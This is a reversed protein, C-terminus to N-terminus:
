NEPYRCLLYERYNIFSSFKRQRIPYSILPPIYNTKCIMINRLSMHQIKLPRFIFGAIKQLNRLIRTEASSIKDENLCDEGVKDINGGLASYWADIFDSEEDNCKGQLYKKILKDLNKPAMIKAKNTILV